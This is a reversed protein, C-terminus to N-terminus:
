RRTVTRFRRRLREGRSTGYADFLVGALVGALTAFLFENMLAANAADQTNTPNILLKTHLWRDLTWRVIAWAAASALTTLVVFAVAFWHTLRLPTFLHLEATVVLALGAVALSSTFAGVEGGFVARLLIPVTAFVLLEWPPMLRWTRTIVPPVLVIATTVGIFFTWGLDFELASELLAGGLVAVLLWSILANVSTERFLHDLTATPDPDSVPDPM